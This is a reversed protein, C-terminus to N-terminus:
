VKVLSQNVIAYITSSKKVKMMALGTFRGFAPLIAHQEGFYFCPFSLSQFSSKFIIGPHVHGSFFYNINPQEFSITAGDHIFCFREVQLQEPLVEIGSQVYWDGELIDHNGKVLQIKVDEIDNRWRLFLEMEKNEKSHFLDGVVIVKKPQFFQIAAFLRQLDEKYLNHPMAIGEKRFHGTKTLHLDSLILAKQEEWFIYRNPSLWFNNNYITHSITPPM